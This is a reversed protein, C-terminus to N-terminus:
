ERYCESRRESDDKTVIINVKEVRKRRDRSNGGYRIDRGYMEVREVRKRKRSCRLNVVRVTEIMNVSKVM